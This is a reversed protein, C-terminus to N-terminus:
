NGCHWLQWPSSYQYGIFIQLFSQKEDVKNELLLASNINLPTAWPKISHFQMFIKLTYRCLLEWDTHTHSDWNEFTHLCAGSHWQHLEGHHQSRGLPKCIPAKGQRHTQAVKLSNEITSVSCSFRCVRNMLQKKNDKKSHIKLLLTTILRHLPVPTILTLWKELMTEWARLLVLTHARKPFGCLLFVSEENPNFYVQYLILLKLVPFTGWIFTVNLLKWQVASIPRSCSPVDLINSRHKRLTRSM